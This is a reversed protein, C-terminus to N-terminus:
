PRIAWLAGFTRLYLTGDSIAPSALLDDDLDNQAVLKFERGAKVVSVRGDRASLYIHGDAFVPSAWHTQRHTREQYVEEGTEADLCILNGNERCLYVLGGHILPSPVDPTNSGRKWLHAQADGTLDGDLGTRIAFVPGNKATPAVIIGSAAAPSAVFRLTPHYRRRPDNRPNLGGLRWVERGDEPAYAITYDAGHTILVKRKGDDFLVPSAYSHENENSAQTVRERKWVDEGTAADLGIVVAEQTNPRGDGHILQVLLRNGALVPTSTMGFGYSIAGYRKRLSAQWVPNGEIDFCALDGNAFLAWVHKGDTTPSPAAMKGQNEGVRSDAITREWLKKGQTSACILVPRSDAVATVFIRGGWICPTAGGQGPLALKWAINSTPSWRTAINKESSIGNSSPGRWQPWNEASLPQVIFAATLMLAAVSPFLPNTIQM